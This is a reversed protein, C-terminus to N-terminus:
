WTWTCLGVQIDSTVLIVDNFCSSGCKDHPFDRLAPALFGGALALVLNALFSGLAHATLTCEMGM